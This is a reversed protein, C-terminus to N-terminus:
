IIYRKFLTGKRVYFQSITDKSSPTYSYFKRRFDGDTLQYWELLSKKVHDYDNAVSAPLGSFVELAHGTLLARLFVVCDSEDWGRNVAYRELRRLYDDISDTHENLCPLRPSHHM